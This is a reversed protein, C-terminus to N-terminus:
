VGRGRARPLTANEPAERLSAAEPTGEPPPETVEVALLRKILDIGDDDEVEVVDGSRFEGLLASVDTLLRITKM